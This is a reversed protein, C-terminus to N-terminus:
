EGIWRHLVQADLTTNVISVVIGYSVEELNHYDSLRKLKLSDFDPILCSDDEKPLKGIHCRKCFNQERNSLLKIDILAVGTGCMRSFRLGIIM